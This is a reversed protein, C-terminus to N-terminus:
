MSTSRIQTLRALHSVLLLGRAGSDFRVRLLATDEVARKFALTEVEADAVEFPGLLNWFVELRHSGFDM